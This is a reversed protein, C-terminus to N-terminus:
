ERCCFLCMFLAHMGIKKQERQYEEVQRAEAECVMVSKKLLLHFNALEVLFAERAEEVSSTTSAPPAVIPPYAVSTYTHFKKTTRRLPREDNTIRTHILADAHFLHRKPNNREYYAQISLRGM